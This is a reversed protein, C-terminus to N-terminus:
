QASRRPLVVRLASCAERRPPNKYQRESPSRTVSPPRATVKETASKSISKWPSHPFSTARSGTLLPDLNELPSALIFILSVSFSSVAGFPSSGLLASSFLFFFLLIFFLLIFLLLIFLLLIFLLLIFLLLIFLLLIFLFRNGISVPEKKITSILPSSGSAEQIGNLREGLQAIGGHITPIVPNSGAVKADRVCREVLSLWMGLKTSPRQKTLTVMQKVM